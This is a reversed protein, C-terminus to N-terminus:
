RESEPSTKEVSAIFSEMQRIREILATFRVQEYVSIEGKKESIIEIQRNLDRVDKKATECRLLTEFHYSALQDTGLSPNCLFLSNCLLIEYPASAFYLYPNNVKNMIEVAVRCEKESLLSFLSPEMPKKNRMRNFEQFEKFLSDKFNDLEELFGDGLNNTKVLGGIRDFLRQRHPQKRKKHARESKIHQLLDM